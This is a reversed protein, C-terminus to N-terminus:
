VSLCSVLISCNQTSGYKSITPSVSHGRTIYHPQGALMVRQQQYSRTITLRSTVTVPLRWCSCQKYNYLQSYWCWSYNSLTATVYRCKTARISGGSMRSKLHVKVILLSCLKYTAIDFLHLPLYFISSSKLIYYQNLQHIFPHELPTESHPKPSFFHGRESNRNKPWIVRQYPYTLQLSRSFIM